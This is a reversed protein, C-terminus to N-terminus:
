TSISLMRRGRSSVPRAGELIQSRGPERFLFSKPMLLCQAQDPPSGSHLSSPKVAKLVEQVEGGEKKMMVEERMMGREKEREKIRRREEDKSTAGGKKRRLQEEGRGQQLNGITTTSM